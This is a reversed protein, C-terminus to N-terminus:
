QRRQEAEKRLREILARRDESITASIAPTAGPTPMLVPAATKMIAKWEADREAASAEKFILHHNADVTFIGILAWFRQPTLPVEPLVIKNGVDGFVYSKLVASRRATPENALKVYVKYHAGVTVDSTM